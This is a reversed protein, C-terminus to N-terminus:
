KGKMVNELYNLKNALSDDYMKSGYKVRLGGVVAPNVIYNVVVEKMFLKQLVTKLDKDQKTTLKKVTEVDVEAIDNKQYFIRIFDDLIMALDAIRRNETIITLCALTENNLQLVKATKALVDKKDDENWLPSSLYSSYSQDDKLLKQLKETDALVKDVCKKEVAAEYLATAYTRSIKTKSAKKM